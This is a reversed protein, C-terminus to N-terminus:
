QRRPGATGYEQNLIGTGSDPSPVAGGPPPGSPLPSATRPGTASGVPPGSPPPGATRPGAVSPLPRGGAGTAPPLAVSTPPTSRGERVAKDLGRLGSLISNARRQEGLIYEDCGLKYAPENVYRNGDCINAPVSLLDIYDLWARVFTDVAALVSQQERTLSPGPSCPGEPGWVVSLSIPNGYQDYTGGATRAVCRCRRPEVSQTVECFNNAALARARAIWPASQADRPDAQFILHETEQAIAVHWPLVVGAVLLAAVLASAWKQM